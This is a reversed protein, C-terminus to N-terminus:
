GEDSSEVRNRGANKAAYLAADARAYLTDFDEGPRMETIGLSATVRINVGYLEITSGSIEACGNP